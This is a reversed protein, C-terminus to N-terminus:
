VSIIKGGSVSVAYFVVNDLLQSVEQGLFMVLSVIYNGANDKSDYSMIICSLDLLLLNHVTSSIIM